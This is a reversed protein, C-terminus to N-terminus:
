LFSITSQPHHLSNILRVALIRAYEIQMFTYPYKFCLGKGLWKFMNAHSTAQRYGMKRSITYKESLILKM